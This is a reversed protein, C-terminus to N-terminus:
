FWDKIDDDMCDDVEDENCGYYDAYDSRDWHSNRWDEEYEDLKDEINEDDINGIEDDYSDIIRGDPLQYLKVSEEQNHIRRIVKTGEPYEISDYLEPDRMMEFEDM